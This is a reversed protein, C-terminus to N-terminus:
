QKWEKRRLDVSAWRDRADKTQVTCRWPSNVTMYFRAEGWQERVYNDLARAWAELQEANLPLYWRSSRRHCWRIVMSKAYPKYHRSACREGIEIGAIRKSWGLVRIADRPGHINRVENVLRKVAQSRGTVRGKKVNKRM